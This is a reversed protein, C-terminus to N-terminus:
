KRSRAARLPILVIEKKVDNTKKESVFMTNLFVDICMKRLLINEYMSIYLIIYIIISILYFHKKSGRAGKSCMVVWILLSVLYSCGMHLSTIIDLIQVDMNMHVEANFGVPKRRKTPTYKFLM